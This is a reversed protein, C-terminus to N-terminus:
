AGGRRGGGVHLRACGREKLLRLLGEIALVESRGRLEVRLRDIEVGGAGCWKGSIAATAAGEVAKAFALLRQLVSIAGHLKRMAVSDGILGEVDPAALEVEVDPGDEVVLVTSGLRLRTGPGVLAREVQVGDAVYTGNTSGLDVVRVAAGERHIELHYRSVMRDQLVLENGDGSGVGLRDNGHASAGADPGEVVRVRVERFAAVRRGDRVTTEM